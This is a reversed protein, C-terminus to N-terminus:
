PLAVSVIELSSLTKSEYRIVSERPIRLLSQTGRRRVALAAPEEIFDLVDTIKEVGSETWVSIVMEIRKRVELVVRAGQCRRLLALAREPDDHLAYPDSPAKIRGARLLRLFRGVGNVVSIDGQPGLRIRDELEAPTGRVPTFRVRLLTGDLEADRLVCVLKKNATARPM